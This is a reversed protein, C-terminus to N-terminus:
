GGIPRHRTVPPEKQKTLRRGTEAGAAEQEAWEKRKRNNIAGNGKGERVECEEQRRGRKM